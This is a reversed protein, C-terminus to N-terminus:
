LAQGPHLDAMKVALVEFRNAMIEFQIANMLEYVQRMQPTELAESYANLDKLSIDRYTVAVTNLTNAAMTERLEADQEALLARLTAEDFGGGEGNGLIGAASAAMLFRVQVERVAAVGTSNADIAAVLRDLAARRDPDAAALLAAGETRQAEDDEVMHSVNEVAVLRQGLDSAYFGAAHALLDDTLTQALIEYAMGNVAEPAFVQDAVRSWDAGFDEAQMGLMAPADRASLGISKLAVDFGTVELFAELREQTVAAGQESTQAWAVTPGIAGGALLAVAVASIVVRGVRFENWFLM